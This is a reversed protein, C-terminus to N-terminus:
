NGTEWVVPIVLRDGSSTTLSIQDQFSGSPRQASLTIVIPCLIAPGTGATSIPNGLCIKLWRSECSSSLGQLSKSSQCSLIIQRTIAKGSPVSGFFLTQPSASFQGLIEGRATLLVTSFASAPFANISTTERNIFNPEFHLESQFHGAPAQATLTVQYTQSLAPKQDRETPAAGGIATVLVDSNSSTLAPFATGTLIDCDATVIVQRSRSIGAPGSGFDLFEPTFSVPARLTLIMEISALPTDSEKAYVWAYKHLTGGRQGALRVAMRVSTEEGPALTVSKAAVGNQILLLSECGCSARLRAITVPQANENRLRFTQEAKSINGPDLPGIESAALGPGMNQVGSGPVVTLHVASAGQNTKAAGFHSTLAADTSQCFSQHAVVLGALILCLRFLCCLGFFKSKANFNSFM